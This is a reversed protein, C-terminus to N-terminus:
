PRTSCPNEETTTDNQPHPARAQAEVDALILRWAECYNSRGTDCGHRLGVGHTRIRQRIGAAVMALTEQRVAEAQADLEDASAAVASAFPGHHGCTGTSAGAGCRTSYPGDWVTVPCGRRGDRALLETM